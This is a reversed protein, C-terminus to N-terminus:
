QVSIRGLQFKLQYGAAEILDGDHLARPTDGIARQNVRPFEHGEVHTIYIGQPRRTLAVLQQGPTGFTTVIRSLRITEGVQHAGTIEDALVTVEGEAFRTKSSRGLAGKTITAAPDGTAAAEALDAERSLTKILMTRELEVDNAIRSSVFCLHHNGLEIVDRHQLIQRVLPKGNVKTGNNSQLDEIIEDAGAVTIRAHRRSLLPDAICIENSPDRGIGISPQDIFYQNLVKGNQMLVLKAM